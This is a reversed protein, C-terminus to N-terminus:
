KAVYKSVLESAINKWDSKDAGYNICNDVLHVFEPILEPKELFLKDLESEKEKFNSIIRKPTGIDSAPFFLHFHKIARELSITALSKIARRIVGVDDDNAMNTIIKEFLEDLNNKSGLLDILISITKRKLGQEMDACLESIEDDSLSKSYKFYELARKRTEKNEFFDFVIERCIKENLENIHKPLLNNYKSSLLIPLFSNKQNEKETLSLAFKVLKMIHEKVRRKFDFINFPIVSLQNVTEIKNLLAYLSRKNTDAPYELREDKHYRYKAYTEDRCLVIFNKGNSIAEDLETNWTIEGFKENIVFVLVDSSKVTLKSNREWQNVGYNHYFITGDTFNLPNFGMENAVERFPPLLETLDGAGCLM